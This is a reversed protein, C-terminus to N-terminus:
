VHTGSGNDNGDGNNLGVSENDQEDNSGSNSDFKEHSKSKVFKQIQTGSERGSGSSQQMEVLSSNAMSSEGTETLRQELLRMQKRKEQIERELNEIAALNTKSIVLKHQNLLLVALQPSNMMGDVQHDKIDVMM